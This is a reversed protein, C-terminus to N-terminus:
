TIFPSYSKLVLLARFTNFRGGRLTSGQANPELPFHVKGSYQQGKPLPGKDIYAKLIALAEDMRPDYSHGSRAFYELARLSDYKWRTPYHPKGFHDNILQGTTESFLLRKKLIFDEGMPRMRDIQTLHTKYDGQSYDYFAELVSLTTHLSSKQTRPRQRDWSCNWGGDPMQHDLIYAVMEDVRSDDAKGYCAMSVIMALVCIDQNDNPKAQSIPRWEAAMLRKLGRHYYDHTPEIELYKLERLTYHTSTWKPGYVGGGWLNTTPDFAALYKGLMGEETYPMPTNLLYKSVLRQLAPDGQMLWDIM